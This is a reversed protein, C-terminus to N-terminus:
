ISTCDISEKLHKYAADSLTNPHSVIGGLNTGNGFFRAGFEEEALALGVAERAFGIVSIGTVGDISLPKIHILNDKTMQVQPGFPPQYYYILEMTELSRQIRMRNPMLPWLAIPYGANNFEIQSYHNGWIAAHFVAIQKWQYASIEPNPRNKLLEYVPHDPTRTKGNSANQYTHFPLSAVTESLVRACALVATTKLSNIENVRVGTKSRHGFFDSLWEAPNALNSTESSRKERKFIRDLIGM